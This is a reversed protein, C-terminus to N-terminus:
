KIQFPCKSCIAKPHKVANDELDYMTVIKCNLLSKCEPCYNNTLNGALINRILNDIAESQTEIPQPQIEVEKLVNAAVRLAKSLRQRIGPSLFIDRGEEIEHITSLDINSIEALKEQSLNLKERLFSIRTALTNPLKEKM